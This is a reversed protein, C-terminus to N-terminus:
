RSIPDGLGKVRPSLTTTTRLLRASKSQSARFGFGLGEHQLDEAPPHCFLSM